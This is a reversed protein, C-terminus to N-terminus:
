YHHNTILAKQCTDATLLHVACLHVPRMFTSERLFGHSTEKIEIFPSTDTGSVLVLVM